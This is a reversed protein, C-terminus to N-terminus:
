LYTHGVFMEKTKFNRFSGSCHFLRMDWWILSGPEWNYIDLISLKKLTELDCHTFYRNIQDQDIQNKEEKLNTENFIITSAQNIKQSSEDVQYPVLWSIGPEGKINKQGLHYEDTHLPYPSVSEAYMGFISKLTPMDVTKKIKSFVKKQFWIEAPQNAKDIGYCNLIHDGTKTWKIFYTKWEDLEEQDFVNKIIGAKLVM